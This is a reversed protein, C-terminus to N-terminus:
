LYGFGSLKLLESALEEPQDTEIVDKPLLWSSIEFPIGVQGSTSLLDYPQSFDQYLVTYNKVSLGPQSIAFEFLPSFTAQTQEATVNPSMVFLTIQETTRYIYGGYGQEVLSPTLRIIETLLKQTSDVNTSNASLSAASFSTSPHTKYTVSTVVGWTGGGGGRLAWFLDKNRYPNAIIHDGDATVITIELVNDVGVFGHHSHSEVPDPLNQEAYRPWLKSRNFQPRRRCAVWRWRRRKRRFLCGRGYGPQATQRGRLGRVMPCRSRLYVSVDRAVGDAPFPIKLFLDSVFRQRVRSFGNCGRSLIFRPFNHGEHPSDMNPVFGQCFEKWSPRTQCSHWDASSSFSVPFYPWGTNKIVLRLNHKGAFRVAEQIDEPTRADVGIVPVGGQRCPIGLSTDLYCGQITGDPFTWTEWNTHEAAGPQGSRWIANSWGALVDTCNGATSDYCLTAPPVPHILPQSVASALTQFEFDSPWCESGSTCRCDKTSKSFVPTLGLAVALLPPLFM